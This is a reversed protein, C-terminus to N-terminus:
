LPFAGTTLVLVVVFNLKAAAAHHRVQRDLPPLADQSPPGTVDALQQRWELDEQLPCVAASCRLCLSHHLLKSTPVQQSM